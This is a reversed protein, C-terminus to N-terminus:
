LFKLNTTMKDLNSSIDSILNERASSIDSNNQLVATTYSELTTDSETLLTYFFISSYYGIILFILILVGLLTSVGGLKNMNLTLLRKAM